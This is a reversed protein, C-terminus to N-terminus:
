DGAPEMEGLVALVSTVLTLGATEARLRNGGLAVPIAGAQLLTDREEPELGGEPGVLLVLPGTGRPLGAPGPGGPDAFALTAGTPVVRLFDDLGTPEGLEMLFARKSQKLSEVAIRHWREAKTGGEEPRAVCRALALPVFRTVGLESAKEVLVDMRATRIVGAGLWVERRPWRVVPETGHVDVELRHKGITHVVGHHRSGAGDTLWVADGSRLRLSRVAHDAEAGEIGVIQGPQVPGPRYLVQEPETRGSRPRRRRKERKM